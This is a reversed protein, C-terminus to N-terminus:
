AFGFPENMVYRSFIQLVFTLFIAALMAAVVGEAGKLLWKKLIKIGQVQQGRWDTKHFAVTASRNM